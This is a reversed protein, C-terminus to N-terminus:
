PIDSVRNCIRASTALTMVNLATTLGFNITGTLMAVIDADADDTELKKADLISDKEDFDDAGVVRGEVGAGGGESNTSM